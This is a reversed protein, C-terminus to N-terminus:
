EFAGGGFFERLVSVRPVSEETLPYFLSTMQFLRNAEHEVEPSGVVQQSAVLAILSESPVVVLWPPSVCSHSLPIPVEALIPRCYNALLPLEYLLATNIMMDASTSHPFIYTEEVARVMPWRSITDEASFGRTRYDRLMRRLLRGDSTSVHCTKDVNLQCIASVPACPLLSFFPYLPLFVAVLKQHLLNMWDEGFLRFVGHSGGLLDTFKPNLAHIGECIIFCKDSPFQLLEDEVDYGKHTSFHYKRSPVPQITQITPRLSLFCFVLLLSIVCYGGEM